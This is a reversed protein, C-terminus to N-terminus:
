GGAAFDGTANIFTLSSWLPTCRVIVLYLVEVKGAPIIPLEPTIVNTNNKTIVM